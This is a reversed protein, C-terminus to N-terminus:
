KRLLLLAKKGWFVLHFRFFGIFCCVKLKIWELASFCHNQTAYDYLYAIADNCQYKFLRKIYQFLLKQNTQATALPEALMKAIVLSDREFLDRRLQSTQKRHLRYMVNPSDDSILSCGSLFMKYWMLSDQSYRLSEDFGGAEDFVSKPILMCCGNLTGKKTMIDAVSVGSYLKNPIFYNPFNKIKTGTSDIFYGSTFAVVRQAVACHSILLEVGQKVKNPAYVDDHSLWSFYDGTMKAIGYNLASSVGGNEKYFYRIQEGYALAIKETAGEDTSGDNVVIIELSEYTQQLASDIATKLYNSGNYVPIVISVKPLKM